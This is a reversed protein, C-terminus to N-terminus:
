LVQFLTPSRGDALGSLQYVRRQGHGDFEDAAREGFAM